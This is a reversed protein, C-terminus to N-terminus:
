PKRDALTVEATLGPILRDRAPNPVRVVVPVVKRAPDAILGVREVVGEYVPGPFAALRVQCAAGVNVRGLLREPLDAEVRVAGLDALMCVPGAAGGAVAACNLVTGDWPARVVTRDLRLHALKVDTIAVEVEARVIGVQTPTPGHLVQEAATRTQELQAEAIRLKAEAEAVMEPTVAGAERVRQLRELTQRVIDRERAAREVAARAAAVQEPRPGSELDKLRAHAANAVAEARAVALRQEGDDLRALVQGAKVAEGDKVLVETFTGGVQPSVVVARGPALTGNIKVPGPEDACLPVPALALVLASLPVIRPAPM